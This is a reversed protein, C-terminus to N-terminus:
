PAPEKRIFDAEFRKAFDVITQLALQSGVDKEAILYDLDQEGAWLRTVVGRVDWGMGEVEDLVTTKIFPVRHGDEADPDIWPVAALAALLPELKKVQGKVAVLESDIEQEHQQSALANGEAEPGEAAMQQQAAGSPVAEQRVEDTVADDHSQQTSSQAVDLFQEGSTFSKPQKLKAAMKHQVAELEQLTMPESSPVGAAAARSRANQVTGEDAPSQSLQWMGKDWYFLSPSGAGAFLQAMSSGVSQSCDGGTTRLLTSVTRPKGTREDRVMFTVNEAM